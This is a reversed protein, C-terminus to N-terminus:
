EIVEDARALLTTPITLGLSRATKLNIVLEYKTPQEVPMESPTAGKLIRDVYAAGRRYVDSVDPGYSILGGADVFEKTGYMAPVHSRAAFDAILSRYAYNDAGQAVYLAGAQERSILTFAERFDTPAHDAVLLDFGLKRSLIELDRRWEADTEGATLWALRTVGPLLERLIELRKGILEEVNLDYSVGTINGGPRGLSQVFGLRVPSTNGVMVIAIKQTVTKAAQTAANATTVIVDVNEDVLQQIIEPLMEWKGEASRRELILNRGEVYGLDRLGHVLARAVPNIPDSGVTESVPSTTFVLGVRHVKSTQQALAAFPWAAAAGGVLAIFERRRM